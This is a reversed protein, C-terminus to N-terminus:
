VVSKRDGQYPDHPAILPAALLALLMVALVIACALTVPDRLVRGAVTRWYGREPPAAASTSPIPSLAPAATGLADADPHLVTANM